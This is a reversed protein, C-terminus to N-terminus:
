FFGNTCKVWNGWLYYRLFCYHLIVVLINVNVCPLYLASRDGCSDEFQRAISVSQKSGVGGCKRVRAVVLKYEM